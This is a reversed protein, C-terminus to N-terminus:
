AQEEEDPESLRRAADRKEHDSLWDWEERTFQLRVAGPQQDYPSPFRPREAARPAGESDVDLGGSDTVQSMEPAM